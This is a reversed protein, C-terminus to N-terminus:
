KGDGNTRAKTARRITERMNRRMALLELALHRATEDPYGDRVLSLYLKDFSLDSM